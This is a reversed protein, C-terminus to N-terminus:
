DYLGPRAPMTVEAPTGSKLAALGAEAVATAAYGDWASAGAPPGGAAADIWAQLEVRYAEAFRPRWDAPHGFGDHRAQRLTIDHPPTLTATGKECVLEGRVDYGYQCNVFVEVTVVVGDAMHFLLIQPDQMKALRTPRPTVVTVRAVDTGLLWRAIDMEHVATNAIMNESTTYSAATENRHVCHLMLAQGLDGSDLTTKMAVYGPDFRRMFGVQVLRKGLATEAAIIELCEDTTLGLPKECLAPKGAALCALVLPKHTPDPSAVIVADVADNGIVAEADAVVGGGYAAAVAEARARDADSVAVLEAGGVSTSLIRAHDGGMVGAGILGVKITM